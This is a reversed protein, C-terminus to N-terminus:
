DDEDTKINGTVINEGEVLTGTSENLKSYHLDVNVPNFKLQWVAGTCNNDYVIYRDGTSFFLQGAKVTAWDALHVQFYARDVQLESGAGYRSGGRSGAGSWNDSGWTDEAFDFRLHGSVADNAKITAALRFRQDWYALDDGNDNDDFDSYNEMAWARVRMTGSLSLKDEAAAVTFLGAVLAFALLVILLKKM